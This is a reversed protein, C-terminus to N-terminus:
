APRVSAPSPVTMARRAAWHRRAHALPRPLASGAGLALCQVWPGLGPARHVLVDHLRLNHALAYAADSALLLLVAGLTVCWLARRSPSIRILLLGIVIGVPVWAVMVRLLPQGAFGALGLLPLADPVSPGVALWHWQRLSYLLGVGSLVGILVALISGASSLSARAIWAIMNARRRGPGTGARARLAADEDALAVTSTPDREEDSHLLDAQARTLPWVCALVLAIALLHAVSAATSAGLSEGFGGIGLGLATLATFANMLSLPQVADQGRLAAQFALFGGFTALAALITWGSALAGAGHLRLGTADAKIAADAVGYLVGSAIARATIRGRLALALAVLLAGASAILLSGPHLHGHHGGFGIPLSALSLAVVAVAILQTRGIRHGVIRAALPVSIALSGAAFAQVLTLPALAVAVIQGAFGIWGLAQGSLWSRNAFMHRLSGRGAALDQSRGRHQLVFGLNILAASLLAALLVVVLRLPRHRGRHAHVFVGPRPTLRPAPSGATAPAPAVWGLREPVHWTALAAPRPPHGAEWSALNLMQNLRPYWVAWDHGGPYLLSRVQAGRARLADVMAVLQRSSSDDRGVFLYARLPDRALRRRLRGLYALPSNYALAARSAQRFVGTRTQTFYGSWAQVNAFVTLHHLAINMAGYGGASFGAIVRDQRRALTAFHHDVNHVVEIVYSEYNGARTNAWESDSFVSAGIRGDPYVLIMPRAHHLSLQNDLRVDVNAIDVFVRPQGPMGHLLYYVPYRRTPSYHPPLYALYDTRRALAPSYFDVKILRGTGARPLQVLTGFGRHLNYDRGYGVAGLLGVTTMAVAALGIAVRLAWRKM